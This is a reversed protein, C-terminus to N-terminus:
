NLLQDAFSQIFQFQVFFFFFFSDLLIDYAYFNTDINNERICMVSSFSLLVMKMWDIRDIISGIENEREREQGVPTFHGEENWERNEEKKLSIM